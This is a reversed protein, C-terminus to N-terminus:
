SEDQSDCSVDDDELEWPAHEEVIRELRIVCVALDDNAKSLVRERERLEGVTDLLDAVDQWSHAIFNGDADSVDVSARWQGTAAFYIDALLVTRGEGRLVDEGGYFAERWEWPGNTAAAHRDRIESLQESELMTVRRWEPFWLSPDTGSEEILQVLPCDKKDGM